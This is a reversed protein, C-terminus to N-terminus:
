ADKRGKTKARAQAGKLFKDSSRSRILKWIRNPLLSFPFMNGLIYLYFTNFGLISEARRPIVFQEISWCFKVKGVGMLRKGLDGDPNVHLSEDFGGIKEFAFKRVATTAQTSFFHGFPKPLLSYLFRIVNWVRYEVKVWMPSDAPVLVPGTVALLDGDREFERMVKDLRDPPSIVDADSFAIIDGKAHRFGVNIQRSIGCRDSIFVKTKCNKRCKTKAKRVTEDTSGGDVVIVEFNHYTQGELCKLAEEIIQEENLTPIIVSVLPSREELM